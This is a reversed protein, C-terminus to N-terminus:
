RMKPKYLPVIQENLIMLFGADRLANLAYDFREDKVSVIEQVSSLPVPNDLCFHDIIEKYLRHETDGVYEPSYEPFREHPSRWARYLTDSWIEACQRIDETSSETRGSFRSMALIIRNLAKSSVLPMAIYEGASLIDDRVRYYEDVVMKDLREPIKSQIHLSDIMYATQLYRQDEVYESIYPRIDAIKDYGIYIDNDPRWSRLHAKCLESQNQLRTSSGYEKMEYKCCYGATQLERPIIDMIRGFIKWDKKTGLVAANIGGDNRMMSPSSSTFLASSIAIQKLIDEDGVFLGAFYELNDDGREKRFRVFTSPDIVKYGSCIHFYKRIGYCTDRVGLPDILDRTEEIDVRICTGEVAPNELYYLNNTGSDTFRSSNLQFVHGSPELNHVFGTHPTNMLVWEIDSFELKYSRDNLSKKVM